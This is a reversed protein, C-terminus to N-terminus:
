SIFPRIFDALSGGKYLHGQIGAAKAAEIDRDKDGIMFSKQMDIEHRAMVDLLMGPKPKRCECDVAYAGQGETAHHPCYLFEEITVGQKKLESGMWLHLKKVQEETFLGRAVGSQNTVVFLKYGAAQAAKLASFLGEVWQVQEPLFAYGIDKNLVGDRDLFLAKTM